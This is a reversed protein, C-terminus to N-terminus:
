KIRKYLFYQVYNVVVTGIFILVTIIAPVINFYRFLGGTVVSAYPLYSFVIMMIHIIVVTYILNIDSKKNGFNRLYGQKYLPNNKALHIISIVLSTVIQIVAVLLMFVSLFAFVPPIQVRSMWDILLKIADFDSYAITRIGEEAEVKLLYLPAFAMLLLTTLALSYRVVSLINFKLLRSDKPKNPAEQEPKKAEIKVEPVSEEVEVFSDPVGCAPCFKSKQSFEEGCKECKFKM